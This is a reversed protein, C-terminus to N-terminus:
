PIAPRITEQWVKLAQEVIEELKGLYDMAFERSIRQWEGSPQYNGASEGKEAMKWVQEPRFYFDNAKLSAPKETGPALMWHISIGHGWWILIRFWCSGNLNAKPFDLIQWPCGDLHEGRSVKGMPLGTNRALEANWGELCQLLQLQIEQKRKWLAADTLLNEPM